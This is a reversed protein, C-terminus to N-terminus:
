KTKRIPIFTYTVIVDPTRVPNSTTNKNSCSQDQATSTQLILLHFKNEFMQILLQVMARWFSLICSLPIRLISVGAVAYLIQKRVYKYLNFCTTCQVTCVITLCFLLFWWFSQHYSSSPFSMPTYLFYFNIENWKCQLGYYSPM